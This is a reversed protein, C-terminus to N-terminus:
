VGAVDVLFSGVVDVIISTAPLFRHGWAPKPARSTWGSTLDVDIRRRDSTQTSTAPELVQMPVCTELLQPRRPNKKPPRRPRKIRTDQCPSGSDQHISLLFKWIDKFIAPPIYNWNYILSVQYVPTKSYPSDVRSTHSFWFHSLIRWFQCSAHTMVCKRLIM